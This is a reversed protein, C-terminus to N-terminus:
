GFHCIDKSDFSLYIYIYIMNVLLGLFFLVSTYKTPKFFVIVKVWSGVGLMGGKM